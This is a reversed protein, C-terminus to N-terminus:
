KRDITCTLLMDITQGDASLPLRLAEYRHPANAVTQEYFGHTPVGREVVDRWIPEIYARLDALPHEDLYKGTLDVQNKSRLETGHLRFRFRLPNYSVDLLNVWGIVYAFDLPDIDARAPCRRSGRKADWYQFLRRLRDDEIADLIQDLIRIRGGDADCTTRANCGLTVGKV